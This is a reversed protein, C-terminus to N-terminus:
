RDGRREHGQQSQYGNQKKKPAKLNAARCATPWNTFRRRIYSRYVCFVEKQSPVHGLEAATRRLIDLLEEDSFSAYLKRGPKGMYERWLRIETWEPCYEGISQPQIMEADKQLRLRLAHVDGLDTNKLAM